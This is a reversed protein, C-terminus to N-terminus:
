SAKNHGLKALVESKSIRIKQGRTHVGDKRKAENTKSLRKLEGAYVLNRIHGPSYGTLRAAENLDIQVDEKDTKM